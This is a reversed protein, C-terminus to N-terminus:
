FDIVKREVLAKELHKVSINGQLVGDCITLLKKAEKKLNDIYEECKTVLQVTSPEVHDIFDNSDYIIDYDYDGEGYQVKYHYEKSDPRNRLYKTTSIEIEIITGTKYRGGKSYAITEGVDFM